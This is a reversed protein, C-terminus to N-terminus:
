THTTDNNNRWGQSKVLASQRCQTEASRARPSASPRRAREASFTLFSIGTGTTKADHGGRCAGRRRPTKAFPEIGPPHGGARALAADVADHHVDCWMSGDFLRM